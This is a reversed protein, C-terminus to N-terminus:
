NIPTEQRCLDFKRIFRPDHLLLQGCIRFRDSDQHLTDIM